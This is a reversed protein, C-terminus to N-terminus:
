AIVNWDHRSRGLIRTASQPHAGAATFIPSSYERTPECRPRATELSRSDHVFPPRKFLAVYGGHDSFSFTMRWPRDFTERNSRCIYQPAVITQGDVPVDRWHVLTAEVDPLLTLLGQGTPEDVLGLCMLYSHVGGYLDGDPLSLWDPDSKRVPVLM